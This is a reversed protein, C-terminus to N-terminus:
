GSRHSSRHPRAPRDGAGELVQGAGACTGALGRACGPRLHAGAAGCSVGKAPRRCSISLWTSAFLPVTRTRATNSLGSPVSIGPWNARRRMPWRSSRARAQEDVLAGDAGVLVLLEDQDDAVVVLGGVALDLEAGGDVAQADHRPSLGPSRMTTLPRCRTRGPASTAGCVRSSPRGGDTVSAAAHQDAACCQCPAMFMELNKMSRGIKAPTSDTASRGRRGARAAPRGIESYGSTTGGRHHHAGVIGPALGFTM